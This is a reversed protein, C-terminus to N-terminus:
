RDSAPRRGLQARPVGPRFRRDRETADDSRAWGASTPPSSYVEYGRYTTRVPETWVPEYSAFDERTFLGDNDRYFRAMERAIDGSYFRDFAARLAQTRSQGNALASDEAEVLRRLTRALDPYAFVTGAPPPEGDTLFVPATTEYAGLLAGISTSLVLWLRTLRIGGARRLRCFAGASGRPDDDRFTRAARDMRRVVWADCRGQSGACSRDATLASADLSTPAAGTANLSYVRDSAKDYVTMFGNGGIGSMMPEVQNLTALIAVAADAATGGQMLVRIGAISALPHAATVLGNPGSVAPRHAELGDSVHEIPARAVPDEDALTQTGARCGAVAIVAGAILVGRVVCRWRGASIM